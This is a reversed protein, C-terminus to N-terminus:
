EKAQPGRLAERMAAEFPRLRLGFTQLAATNDCLNEEYLAQAEDATIPPNPLVAFARVIARAAAPPLHVRRRRLGLVRSATEMIDNYTVVDPGGIEYTRGLTDVRDVAAIVAPLVDDLAVPMSRYTGRGLVPVLPVLNALPGFLGRAGVMLVFPYWPGFRVVDAFQAAAGGDPAIFLSPRFIVWPIGASKVAEEGEWKSRPYRSADPNAGLASLHVVREVGAERAAAAVHAAGDRNVAAFTEGSRERLIAVLHIVARVGTLATRLAERERVDALAAEHGGRRLVASASSSRVVGRVRAGRERLMAVLRRGVFGDAGTVAVPRPDPHQPM